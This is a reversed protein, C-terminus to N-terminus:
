FSILNSSHKSGNLESYTAKGQSLITDLPPEQSCRLLYDPGLFLGPLKQSAWCGDAEWPPGQEISNAGHWSTTLPPVAGRLRERASSPHWHDALKQSWGSWGQCFFLEQCGNSLLNPPGWLRDPCATGAPFRVWDEMGYGSVSQAIDAWWYTIYQFCSILLRSTFVPLMACYVLGSQLSWYTPLKGSAMAHGNRSILYAALLQVSLGLLAKCSISIKVTFIDTPRRPLLATHVQLCIGVNRLLM